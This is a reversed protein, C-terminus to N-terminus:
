NRLRVTLEAMLIQKMKESSVNKNISSKLFTLRINKKNSKFYKTLNEVMLLINRRTSQFVGRFFDGWIHDRLQLSFTGQRM